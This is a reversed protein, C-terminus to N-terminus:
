DKIQLGCNICFKSNKPILSKCKPCKVSTKEEMDKQKKLIDQFEWLDLEKKCSPCFAKTKLWELIEDKHFPAKCFPCNVLYSGSIRKKCINCKPIENRCSDCILRYPSNQNGCNPCIIKEPALVAKDLHVKSYIKKEPIDSKFRKGYQEIIGKRELEPIRRYHEDLLDFLIGLLGRSHLGSPRRGGFLLKKIFESLM